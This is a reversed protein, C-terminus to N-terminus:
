DQACVDLGAATAATDADKSVADAQPVLKQAEALNKDDVAKVLKTLVPTGKDIADLFAQYKDKLSDPPNLAKLKDIADNTATLAADFDKPQSVNKTKKNLDACIANAQSKLDSESLQKGSSSGGGGGCGAVVLVGVVAPLAISVITKRM